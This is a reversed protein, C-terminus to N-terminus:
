VFVKKKIVFPSKYGIKRAIWNMMKQWLPRKKFTFISYLSNIIRSDFYLNDLFKPNQNQNLAVADYGVVKVNNCHTGSGDM